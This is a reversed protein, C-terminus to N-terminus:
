PKLYLRAVGEAIALPRGMDANTLVIVALSDNPFRMYESRFGALSGGHHARWHGDLSDLSWGLGYGASSGDNLLVPTIMQRRTAATLPRDTWLAAEWKALDTVSSVFAGSPRLAAYEESEVPGTPRIEYSKARAAVPAITTTTSTMGLPRFIRDQSFSEWSQGSVRRVMEAAAFYCINCYQYKAGITFDFPQSLAAVILVSDPHPQGDFAQSERQIGSTHSLLRRITVGKWATATEPLYHGIEEDLSVKGEQVLLMVDSAIFQKSVSAIGFATTVTADARPSISALGWAKLAVPRGARVVAVAVGPIKREAMQARVLSDLRAEQQAALPAALLPILLLASRLPSM